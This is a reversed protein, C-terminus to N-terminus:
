RCIVFDHHPRVDIGLKLSIGLLTDDPRIFYKSPIDRKDEIPDPRDAQETDTACNAEAQGSGSVLATMDLAGANPGRSPTGEDTELDSVGDEDEDELVFVDEDRVSGDVNTRGIAGPVINSSSSANVASVGALCLLCPNYRTLRPNAAVCTPCIPRSCCLTHFVKSDETRPPLSASCALCLSVSSLALPM